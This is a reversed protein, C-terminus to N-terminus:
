QPPYYQDAGIDAPAVRPEGDIDKAAAGTLSAGPDSQQLAQLPSTPMLHLDSVENKFKPDNNQNHNPDTPGTSIGNPGIDSYTYLCAGQIQIGQNAAFYSNNNWIINDKATFGSDATCSIGGPAGIVPATQQANNRSISNFELRNGTASTSIAIGGVQSMTDGNNVFVNGVITFQADTIKLGGGQNSDIRSQVLTISGKSANVSPSFMGPKQSNNSITVRTLNLTCTDSNIGSLDNSEITTDVAILTSGPGNCKIGDGMKGTAQITGSLLTLSKGGMVTLVPGGDARTLTAGRADITVDNSVTFGSATFPGQDDLKIVDKGTTALMLAGTLSCANETTDGCDTMKTSGSTVHIIRSADACGGTALCVGGQCDQADDVCAVCTDKECRPTTDKCVGRDSSTCPECTGQDITLDCVPFSPTKCDNNSGCGGGNSADGPCGQLGANAPNECFAKNETRCGGLAVLPVVVLLLRVM